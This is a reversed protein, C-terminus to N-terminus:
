VNTRVFLQTLPSDPSHSIVQELSPNRLLPATFELNFNVAPYYRALAPGDTSSRCSTMSFAPLLRCGTRPFTAFYLPLLVNEVRRRWRGCRRPHLRGWALRVVCHRHRDWATPAVDSDGQEDRWRLGLDTKVVVTAVFGSWEVKVM